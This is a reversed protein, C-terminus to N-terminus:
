GEKIYIALKQGPHIFSNRSLNNWREIKYIPVRYRNSIHSLTDGKRVIYTEKVSGNQSSSSALTPSSRVPITLKQGPYIYAGYSLGNWRRITRASTGYREAIHGLTDGKRVKYSITEQPKQPSATAVPGSAASSPVPITLKTGERIQNYNRIKNVSAIDHMSVRYKSAIASLSEGPRVIHQRYQPAFRSSEPLANFAITFSERKGTPLKLSYSQDPPTAFQRLEPNIQKLKKVSINACRALVALDASKEVVVVDLSIEKTSPIKFGYREPNRSIIAAALFTPVYNRTERPLSNLRWFETTQHLKIARNVRGSGSNYAALALYWDDFELFLDKLYAAAANTAKEPDRREDIWWTRKLGYLKATSSIFQWMGAAHARSYAKPNLGSEVMALFILEEPLENKKLINTILDKYGPYRSLWIQFNRRGKTQFFKVAQEVRSNMVLPLHGERDDIVQFKNGNIEFELPELYEALEERLSATAIPTEGQTITSFYNEYSYLLTTEFRGFEEQDDPLMEGLQEAQNLLTVIKDILYIVESTDDHQDAILAEAFLEKADSLIFSFGKGPDIHQISPISEQQIQSSDVQFDSLDVAASDVITSDPTQPIAAFLRSAIGALLILRTFSLKNM